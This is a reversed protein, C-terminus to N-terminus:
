FIEYTPTSNALLNVAQYNSNMTYTTLGDFTVTGGPTTLTINSTAANGLRDKVIWQQKFTPANPFNLQM